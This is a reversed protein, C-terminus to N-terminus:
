LLPMYFHETLSKLNGIVCKQNHKPVCITGTLDRIHKETNKVTLDSWTLEKLELNLECYKTFISVYVIKIQFVIGIKYDM